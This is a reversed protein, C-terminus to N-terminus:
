RSGDHAKRAAAEIRLQQNEKRLRANEIELEEAEDVVGEHEHELADVRQLLLRVNRLTAEIAALHTVVEERVGHLKRSVARRREVHAQDIEGDDVSDIM